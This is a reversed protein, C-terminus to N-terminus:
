QEHEKWADGPKGEFMMHVGQFIFRDPDGRLNLIGKMRMINPGLETIVSRFWESVKMGDLDGPEVISISAIGHLHDHEDSHHHQQQHESKPVLEFSTGEFLGAIDME